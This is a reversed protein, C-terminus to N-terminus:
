LPIPLQKFLFGFYFFFFDFIWPLPSCCCCYIAIAVTSFGRSFFGRANVPGLLPHLFDGPPTPGPTPPDCTGVEKGQFNLGLKRMALESERWRSVVSIAPLSAPLGKGPGILPWWEIHTDCTHYPGLIMHLSFM